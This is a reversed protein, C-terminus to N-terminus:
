GTAACAIGRKILARVVAPALKHLQDKHVFDGAGQILIEEARDEGLAGTVLIFPVDPRRKKAEALALAGNYQPLNYDSLILDPAFAEMEKVFAGGTAVRKATFRLGAEFLEYAMLDADTSVDELILIRLGDEM